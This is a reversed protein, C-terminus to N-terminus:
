TAPSALPTSAVPRCRDAGLHHEALHRAPIAQRALELLRAHHTFFLVQTHAAFEGLVGLAARAREDDFHVLADDLLLPLAERHQMFRELSALRLALYLQDRTGDSLADVQVSRGEGDICTLVPQDDADFGVRLGSHHGVTLRAFLESGRQVVPGQNEDRYRRIERQLLEIALKRRLYSRAHTKVLSLQQEAEAAADAAREDQELSHLGQQLRGVRHLVDKYAEDLEELEAEIELQRPRMRDLDQDAAQAALEELTAGDSHLLLEDEVETLASLLARAEESRQEARELADDDAVSALRQLQALQESAAAASAELAELDARAEALDRDLQERQALDARAKDHRRLLEDAAEEVSLEQLSFLHRDTLALVDRRFQKTDQEMAEIRSQLQRMEDLKAFVRTRGDLVALAEQASADPRLRLQQMRNAWQARWQELALLAQQRQQQLRSLEQGLARQKRETEARRASSQQALQWARDARLRLLQLSEDQAAGPQGISRLGRDLVDRLGRAEADLVHLQAQHRASSEALELLSAVKTLLAQMQTCTSPELAVGAWTAQWLSQVRHRQTQAEATRRTLEARTLEIAAREGRVSALRSVRGAERRLRDALADTRQLAAQYSEVCRTAAQPEEGALVGRLQQWLADRESRATLLELESPPVGEGELAHLERLARGEREGLQARAVVLEAEARECADFRQRFEAVLADSPWPLAAVETVSLRSLGLAALRQRARRGELELEARLAAARAELDGADRALLLARELQEGCPFAATAGLEQRALETENALADCRTTASRLREGLGSYDSALQSVHAQTARDVRLSEAHELTVPSGLDRLIANAGDRLSRLEARRRPLDELAKLHNGLRNRIARMVDIGVEALSEPIDLEARRAQLRAMTASLQRHERAAGSLEGQASRRLEASGPALMVVSGLAAHRALLERRKALGPLARLVRLLRTQEALLARRQGQLEGSRARAQELQEQQARFSDARTTADRSAKSAERYSRIAENLAPRRGTPRFLEEAEQRLTQLLSHVGAGGLGAQFLSEGLEGRGLRLQEGGQRLREHDLGFMTRFVSQPLGGLMAALRSEDIPEDAMGRLSAKRGKVRAVSLEAGSDDRLRARIRLGESGFVRADASQHPLDYLLGLIARLTTSKGAENPGYILHLAPAERDFVLKRHVLAGFNTLELELLKM